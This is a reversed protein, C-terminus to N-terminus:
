EGCEGKVIRLVQDLREITFDAEMDAAASGNTLFASVCGANRALEIDFRYDGVCLLRAVDLGMAQAAHIVSQPDPKPRLEDDRTIVIVFDSLAITSFNRMSRRIAALGNRTVIALPIGGARLERVTTEAGENPVSRGAAEIEHRSLIREAEERTAADDLVDVFELIPQGDPCGLERRMTTFDIAGPATLTGDFDFIVGRISM